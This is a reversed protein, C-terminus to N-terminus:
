EIWNNLIDRTVRAYFRGRCRELTMVYIKDYIYIYVFIYIYINYKFFLSESSQQLKKQEGM